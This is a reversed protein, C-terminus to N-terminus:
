AVWSRAGKGSHAPADTPVNENTLGKDRFVSECKMCLLRFGVVEANQDREFALLIAEEDGCTPCPFGVALNMVSGELHDHGERRVQINHRPSPM